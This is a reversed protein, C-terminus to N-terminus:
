GTALRRIAELHRHDHWIVHRLLQYVTIRGYAEHRAARKWSETPATDVLAVLASRGERFRRLLKAKPADCAGSDFIKRNESADDWDVIAPDDENLMARLRASFLQDAVILHEIHEKACWSTENPRRGLTDDGVASVVGALTQIVDLAATCVLRAAEPNPPSAPYPAYPDDSRQIEEALEM